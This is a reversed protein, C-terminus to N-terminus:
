PRPPHPGRLIGGKRAAFGDMMILAHDSDEHKEGDRADVGAYRLDGGGLDGGAVDNRAGSM